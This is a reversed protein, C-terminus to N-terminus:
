KGIVQMYLNSIEKSISDWNYVCASKKSKEILDAPYSQEVVSLLKDALEDSNFTEFLQWKDVALETLSSNNALLTPVGLMMSEIAPIGFGEYESPFVFAVANSMLDFKEVEGIFGTFKIKNGLEKKCIDIIADENYNPRGVVILELENDLKQNAISLAKALTEINKRPEINGVTIIYEVGKNPKAKNKNLSNNQSYDILSQSVGVPIIHIKSDSDPFLDIVRSRTYNSVTIIADSFKVQRELNKKSFFANTTSFLEPRDIPIVDHITSIKKVNKPGDLRAFYTEHVIDPQFDRHVLTVDGGCELYLNEIKRPVYHLQSMNVGGSILEGLKENKNLFNQVLVKLNLNSNEGLAISLDTCYRAVGSIPERVPRGDFLIKVM